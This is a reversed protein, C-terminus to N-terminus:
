HNRSEFALARAPNAVTMNVIQHDKVGAQSLLPLFKVQLYDYGKGGYSHLHHKMCVDLSLLLRDECGGAILEVINRARVEDPPYGQGEYGINDIGLYVGTDAIARFHSAGFRDGFHSIVIRESPVGEERLLAIQELAM